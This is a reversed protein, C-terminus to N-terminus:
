CVSAANSVDSYILVNIHAMDIVPRYEGRSQHKTTHAPEAM